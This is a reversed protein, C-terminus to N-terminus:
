CIKLWTYNKVRLVFLMMIMYCEIFTRSTYFSYRFASSWVEFVWGPPPVRSFVRVSDRKKWGGGARSLKCTEPSRHLSKDGISSARECSISFFSFFRNKLFFIKRLKKQFKKEFNKKAFNVWIVDRARFTIFVCRCREHAVSEDTKRALRWVSHPIVLM